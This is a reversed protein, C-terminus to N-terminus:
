TGASVLYATSSCLVAARREVDFLWARHREIDRERPRARPRVDAAGPGTRTHSQRPAVRAHEARMEPSRM